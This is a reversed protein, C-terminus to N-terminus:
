DCACCSRAAAPAATGVGVGGIVIVVSGAVYEESGDARGKSCTKRAGVVHAELRHFDTAWAVRIRLRRGFAQFLDEDAALVLALVRGAAVALDDRM